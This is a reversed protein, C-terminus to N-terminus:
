LNIAMRLWLDTADKALVELRFDQLCRCFQIVVQDGMDHAVVTKLLAVAAQDPSHSPDLTHRFNVDGYASVRVKLGLNAADYLFRFKLDRFADHIAAVQKSGANGPGLLTSLVPVRIPLRNVQKLAIGLAALSGETWSSTHWTFDHKGFADIRFGLM